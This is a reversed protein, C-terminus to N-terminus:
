VIIGGGPSTDVVNKRGNLKAVGRAMDQLRGRSMWESWERGTDHVGRRLTFNTHLRLEEGGGYDAFLVTFRIDNDNRREYRLRLQTV